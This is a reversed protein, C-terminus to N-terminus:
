KHSSFVSPMLAYLFLIMRASGPQAGLRVDMQRNNAALSAILGDIGSDRIIKAFAPQFNTIPSIGAIRIDYIQWGAATKEMDYDISMSQGGTQKITSKVTAMTRNGPVRMGQYEVAQNHYNALMSSYSRVLMTKFESTLAAQQQPSARQWNRAMSLEAMHRFNFLPLIASDILKAFKEPDNAQLNREGKLGSMVVFTAASLLRDPPTDALPTAAGPPVPTAPMTPRVDELMLKEGNQRLVKGAPLKLYPASENLSLGYTFSMPGRSTSGTGYGQALSLRHFSFTASTGDSCQLEGAGGHEASSTFQGHCSLEPKSRSQISLTGAGGLHGEAEGQFLDGALLAIVPGTRSFLGANVSNGWGIFGLLAVITIVRIKRM